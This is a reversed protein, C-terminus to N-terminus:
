VTALTARVVSAIHDVDADTMGPHSGIYFGNALAHRTKPFETEGIELVGEYCPQGIIPLLFRTEVGARELAIVLRDRLEATRCVIPFMMFAHENGDATVPLQLDPHDLASSLNAAIERRRQLNANLRELQGIGLAAEMETVRFSQGISHFDYRSWVVRLLEEDDLDQDDDITLYRPNRGHNMLSRFRTINEQDDTLALGGVGTTVIHAMYTSFCGFDGFSGVMRGKHRVGLTEASDEIVRLDHEQALAMLATMDAAQGFLHVPIMAVTKDTIAAATSEPDLTYSDPNIDALVPRLGNFLVINVTAVFTMAPVIVEAGDPWRYREKLTQLALQLAGTGSNCMAAYKRDHIAAFRSEFESMVPGASLRGSALVRDVRERDDATIDATGVGIRRGTVSREFTITRGAQGSQCVLM